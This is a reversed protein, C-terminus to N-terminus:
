FVGVNTKPLRSEICLFGREEQSVSLHWYLIAAGQNKRQESQQCSKRKTWIVCASIIGTGIGMNKQGTFRAADPIFLQVCPIM